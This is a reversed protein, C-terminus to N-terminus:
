RNLRFSDYFAQFREDRVAGNGIEFITGQHEFVISEAYWDEIQSSTVIVKIAAIGDVYVCGRVETRDSVFQRGIDSIVQEITVDSSDFSRVGWQVDEGMEEPGVGVWSDFVEVRWREPYTFQFGREDDEYVQWNSVDVTSPAEVSPIGGDPCLPAAPAISTRAFDYTVVDAASVLVTSSGGIEGLILDFRDGEAGQEGNHRAVFLYHDGDVWRFSHVPVGADISGPITGGSWQGIQLQPRERGAIFAFRRSHPGWGCLASADPYAQWDSTGLRAVKLQVQVEALTDGLQLVEGYAVYTLLPSFSIAYDGPLANITTVLEASSGDTSIRWITTHQLPRADPDPPPVAVMLGSGDAAWVPNVYFDDVSYMAVPAYTLVGDRRNTGDADLLSVDGPTVVAVQSGDPSYTFEGGEGPPLLMTQELTDADVLRLDHALVDRAELRQRTNFALTHTGPVWEFRNLRTEIGDSEITEFDEAGLLQRENTGDSDIAWLEDARRFAVIRGDGSLKVHFLDDGASTLLAAARTGATWLWIDGDKAFVVRLGDPAAYAEIPVPTFAPEPTPAVYDDPVPTPTMPAPILSPNEVAVAEATSATARAPATPAEIGVELTGCAALPLISFLFLISLTILKWRHDAKIARYLRRESSVCSM